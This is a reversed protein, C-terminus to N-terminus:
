IHQRARVHEIVSSLMVDGWKGLQERLRHQVLPPMAIDADYLKLFASRALVVAREEEPASTVANQRKRTYSRVTIVSTVAQRVREHPSYPYLEDQDVFDATVVGFPGGDANQASNEIYEWNTVTNSELHVGCTLHSIYRVQRVGDVGYDTDDCTTIDGLVDTVQIEMNAFYALVTDFVQRVTVGPADIPTMDVRLACYDGSELLFRSTEAFPRFPDLFRTREELYMTGLRLKRPKIRVLADRRQQQNKSLSITIEHPIADQVSQVRARSPSDKCV